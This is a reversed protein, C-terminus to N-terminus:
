ETREFVRSWDEFGSARALEIGEERLVRARSADGRAAYAEAQYWATSLALPVNNRVLREPPDDILDPQGLRARIASRVSRAWWAVPWHQEDEAGRSDM